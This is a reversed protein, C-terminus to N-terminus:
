SNRGFVEHPERISWYQSALARSIGFEAAASIVASEFGDAEIRSAMHLQVGLALMSRELGESVRKRTMRPGRKAGTFTAKLTEHSGELADALMRRTQMQIPFDSRLLEILAGVGEEDMLGSALAVFPRYNAEDAAADQTREFKPLPESNVVLSAAFKSVKSM